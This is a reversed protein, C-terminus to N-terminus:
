EDWRAVRLRNIARQLALQARHFDINEAKSRLRKEARERAARARNLDIEEPREASDALIVAKNNSVEFFGGSVALPSFEGGPRRYKVVGIKLAALMPAHNPLVGLYGDVGPLVLSYVSEKLVVREPTVVTLELLDSM